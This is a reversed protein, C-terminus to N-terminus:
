YTDIIYLVNFSPVYTHVVAQEIYKNRSAISLIIPLECHLVCTPVPSAADQPVALVQTILALSAIFSVIQFKMISYAQLSLIKSVLESLPPSKTSESLDRALLNKLGIKGSFTKFISNNEYEGNVKSNESDRPASETFAFEARRIIILPSIGYISVRLV